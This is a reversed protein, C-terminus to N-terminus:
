ALRDGRERMVQAVDSAARPMDVHRHPSLKENGVEEVEHRKMHERKAARGSVVKGDIPSVFPQIDPVIQFVRPVRDGTGGYRTVGGDDEIWRYKGTLVDKIYRRM